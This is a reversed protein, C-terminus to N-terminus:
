LITTLSHSTSITSYMYDRENHLNYIIDEHLPLEGYPAVLTYTKSSLAKSVLAPLSAGGMWFIRYCATRGTAVSLAWGGHCLLDSLRFPFFFAALLV